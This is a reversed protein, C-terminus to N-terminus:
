TLPKQEKTEELSMLNGEVKFYDNETLDFIVLDNFTKRHKIKQIFPGSGGFAVLFNSFGGVVHTFRGELDNYNKDTRLLQWEMNDPELTRLDNMVSNSTGGYVAFKGSKLAAVGAFSRSAPKPGIQNVRKYILCGVMPRIFMGKKELFDLHTDKKEEDFKKNMM